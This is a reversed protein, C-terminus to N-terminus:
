DGCPPSHWTQEPVWWFGHRQGTTKPRGTENPGLRGRRDLHQIADTLIAFALFCVLGVPRSIVMGQAPTGRIVGRRGTANTLAFTAASLIALVAGLLHM